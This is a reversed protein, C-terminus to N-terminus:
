AEVEYTRQSKDGFWLMQLEKVTVTGFVVGIKRGREITPSELEAPTVDSGPPRPAILYSLVLLGVAIAVQAIIPLPM